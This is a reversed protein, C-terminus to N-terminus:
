AAADLGQERALAAAHTRSTAGLKSLINSVHVEVTKESIVLAEAIARNSAGRALLCLVERERPTLGDGRASSRRGAGLQRELAGVARLELRAGIAEALGRAAELQSRAEEQAASTRSRLLSAALRRRAQAERLPLGMQRWAEAAERFHAAAREPAQELQGRADALLAQEPPTLASSVSLTEALALLTQADRTRRARLYVDIADPLLYVAKRPRGGINWARVAEDVAAAARGMDGQAAYTLALLQWTNVAEYCDGPAPLRPEIAELLERAAQAEGRALLLEARLQSCYVQEILVGEDAARAVQDLHAQAEDWSGLEIEYWVLKALSAAARQELGGAEALALGERAVEAARRFEGVHTLQGALNFCARVADLPLRADRAIALSRELAAIGREYDGLECQSVGVNNLAHTKVADDSLEEALALAREGWVISEHSQETLMYLHSLASYAMALERCPPEGELAALAAHTRAFADAQDGLEWAARGLWRLLDASQRREGLGAYIEQAERWYEASRRVDGVAYAAHGLRALLGAREREDAHEAMELAVEYHALAERYAYLSVARDGAQAAYRAARETERAQLSHHALQDVVDATEAGHLAELALLVERHMGRRERRLLGELVAERVLEHRFGYRDEPADAEEAILQREVLQALARLLDPEPLATVRALLDFDFRRGIVAAYRLVRATDADLDATRRAISDRVSLPLEPISFRRWTRAAEVLADLRGHAVLAGIVEEAFFPNGETREYLADVFGAPLARELTAEVMLGFEPRELPALRLERYLRERTLDAILHTLPHRRHLEDTRYTGILLVRDRVISRALFAILEQSTRDSWHLDELVLVAARPGDGPRVARYIAEFMRRKEPYAEGGGAVGAAPAVDPLLRGLDGAWPGAAAAVAEPGRAHVLSRLLDRFPAYPEAPDEDFCNGRLVEVGAGQPLRALFENVLRTKGVGAEGALFVVQGAGRRVEDLAAALEGLPAERGFISPSLTRYSM